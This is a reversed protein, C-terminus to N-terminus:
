LSFAEGVIAFVSSVETKVGQLQWNVLDKVDDLMLWSHFEKLYGLMVRIGEFCPVTRKVATSSMGGLM